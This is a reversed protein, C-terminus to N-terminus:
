STPDIEDSFIQHKLFGTYTHFDISFDFHLTTSYIGSHPEIDSSYFGFTEKQNTNTSSHTVLSSPLNVGIKTEISFIKFDTESSRGKIKHTRRCWKFTHKDDTEISLHDGPKVSCILHLNIPLFINEADKSKEDNKGNNFNKEFDIAFISGM